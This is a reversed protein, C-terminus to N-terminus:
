KVGKYAKTLDQLSLNWIKTCDSWHNSFYEVKWIKLDDEMKSRRGNSTMKMQCKQVRQNLGMLKLKLNSYSGVLPLQSIQSKLKQPQRGNSTTKIELM